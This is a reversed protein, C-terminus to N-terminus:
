RAGRPGPLRTVTERAARRSSAVILVIALVAVATTPVAAFLVLGGGINAGIVGATMIRYGLGVASAYAAAIATLVLLPPRTAGKARAAVLVVLGLIVASTAAVLVISEQTSSLVPPHWLYDLDTGPSSLDGVWSWVAFPAAAVLAGAAGLVWWPNRRDAPPRQELVM